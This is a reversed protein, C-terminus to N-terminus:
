TSCVHVVPTSPTRTQAWPTTAPLGRSPGGSTPSRWWATRTRALTTIDQDTHGGPTQILSVNESVQFGEAPRMVWQDNRYIGGWVDHAQANPFLAVNFTHDPHHHSFVVDTIDGAEIGLERLPDLISGGRSPM